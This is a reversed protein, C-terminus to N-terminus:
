ESRGYTFNFASLLDSEFQEAVRGGARLAYGTAWTPMVAWPGIWLIRGREEGLELTASTLASAAILGMPVILKPKMLQIETHLYPLCNTIEDASHKRKIAKCRNVYTLCINRSSFGVKSLLSTFYNMSDQSFISPSEAVFVCDPSTVNWSPIVAPHALEVCRKCNMTMSHLTRLGNEGIGSYLEERIDSLVAQVDAKHMYKPLLESLVELLRGENFALPIYAKAPVVAEPEEELAEALIDLVDRERFEETM